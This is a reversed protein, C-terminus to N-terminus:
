KKYNNLLQYLRLSKEKHVFDPLMCSASPWCPSLGNSLLCCHTFNKQLISLPKNTFFLRTKRNRFNYFIKFQSQHKEDKNKKTSNKVWQNLVLAHIINTKRANLNEYWLINNICYNQRKKKYKLYLNYKTISFERSFVIETWSYFFGYWESGMTM